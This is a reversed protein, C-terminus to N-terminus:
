ARCYLVRLRKGSIPENQVDGSTTVLELKIDCKIVPVHEYHAEADVLAMIENFYL